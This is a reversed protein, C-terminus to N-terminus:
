RCTEIRLVTRPGRATDAPGSPRSCVEGKRLDPLRTRSPRGSQPQRRPCALLWASRCPWSQGDAGAICCGAPRGGGNAVFAEVALVLAAADGAGGSQQLLRSETASARTVAGRRAQTRQRVPCRQEAVLRMDRKCDSAAGRAARTARTCRAVLYRQGSELPKAIRRWGPGRSAGPGPPATM